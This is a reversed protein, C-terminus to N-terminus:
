LIKIKGHISIALRTYNMCLFLRPWLADLSLLTSVRQSFIDIFDTKEWLREFGSEILRQLVEDIKEAFPSGKEYSFGLYLHHFSQRAIKM